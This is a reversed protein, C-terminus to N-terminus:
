GSGAFIALAESVLLSAVWAWLCLMDHGAM